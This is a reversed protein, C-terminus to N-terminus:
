SNFFWVSGVVHLKSNPFYREKFEDVAHIVQSFYNTYDHGSFIGGSKVFPRWFELNTKVSQYEHSGDEFIMDVSDSWDKFIEPCSGKLLVVNSLDKLYDKTSEYSYPRNFKASWEDVWGVEAFPDCSVIKASPAYKSMFRTTGGWATGIDIITAKEPLSRVLNYVAYHDYPPILIGCPHNTTADNFQDLEALPWNLLSINTQTDQM